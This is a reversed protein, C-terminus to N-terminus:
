KSGKRIVRETEVTGNGDHLGVIITEFCPSKQRISFLFFSRFSSLLSRARHKRGFRLGWTESELFPM